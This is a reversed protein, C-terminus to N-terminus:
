FNVIKRLDESVENISVAIGYLSPVVVHGGQSQPVVVPQFRACVAFAEGTEQLVIPGGSNGYNLAKDIVYVRPDASTMLMQSMELSSSIIASTTRPGLGTHGTQIGGQNRHWVEPLPYGFAYVPTGDEQLEFTLPLHPFGDRGSLWEKERNRELDFKLLSLDLHPWSQIVTAFQVLTSIQGPAWPPQQLWIASEDEGDVVHHATLFYGSGDIFFGTGVPSPMGGHKDSPFLVAFTAKKTIELTKRIM